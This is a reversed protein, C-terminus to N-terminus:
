GIFWWSLGWVLKVTKSSGVGLCWCAGWPILSPSPCVVHCATSITKIGHTRDLTGKGTGEAKGWVPGEEWPAFCAFCLLAFCIFCLQLGRMPAQLICCGERCEAQGDVMSLVSKFKKVCNGSNMQFPLQLKDGKGQIWMKGSFDLKTSYCFLLM